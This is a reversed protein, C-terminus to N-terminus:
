VNLRSVLEMGGFASMVKPMPLIWGYEGKANAAFVIGVAQFGDESVVLSGSDGGMAFADGADARVTWIDTFWVTGKFSKSTYEIPTFRKSRAEVTGFTLGTTRGFKKVRMMSMPSAVIEPTDFGQNEDGQWSSLISKNTVSSIAIDLECPKVFNPDGSRLEVLEYHRGIERPAPADARGDSSSPALIPQGPPTHNCGSFVHNNSLVFIEQSAVKRVIAGFTGSYRESTPACSTGCCLRGDRLFIHGRQAIGSVADPRVVLSSMKHAVVPVSEVRDPLSRIMKVSGRKLYIHVKPEQTGEEYGVSQVELNAFGDTDDSFAGEEDEALVAAGVSNPFLDRPNILGAAATFNGRKMFEFALIDAVREADSM